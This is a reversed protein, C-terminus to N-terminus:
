DLASFQQAVYKPAVCHAFQGVLVAQFGTKHVFQGQLRLLQALTAALPFIEQEGAAAAPEAEGARDESSLTSCVSDLGVKKIHPQSGLQSGILVRPCNNQLFINM